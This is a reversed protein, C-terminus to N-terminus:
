LSNQKSKPSLMSILTEAKMQSYKTRVDARIQLISLPRTNGKTRLSNWEGDTVFGLNLLYCCLIYCLISHLNNGAVKMHRKTMEHIVKNALKRVKADSLGKYPLCQVPLAYPKKNREEPSIMFVLVHTAAVRRYRTVDQIFATLSKKINTLHCPINVDEWSCNDKLKDMICKIEVSLQRGSQNLNSLEHINWSLRILTKQTPKASNQKESFKSNAKLLAIIFFM